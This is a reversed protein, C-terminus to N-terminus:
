QINVYDAPQIIKYKDSKLSKGLYISNSSSNKLTEAMLLISYSTDSQDNYQIIVNYNADPHASDNVTSEDIFADFTSAELIDTVNTYNPDSPYTGKTVLFSGARVDTQIGTATILLQPITSSSDGGDIYNVVGANVSSLKGTGEDYKITVGDVDNAALLKTKDSIGAGTIYLGVPKTSENTTSLQVEGGTIAPFAIHKNAAAMTINNAIINNDSNLNPIDVQSNSFQAGANFVPKNNFLVTSEPQCNITGTILNVGDKTVFKGNAFDNAFDELNAPSIVTNEDGAAIEEATAFRVEGYQTKNAINADGAYMVGQDRDYRIYTGGRDEKSERLNTTLFYSSENTIRLIYESLTDKEVSIVPSFGKDGKEGQRGTVGQRNLYFNFKATNDSM